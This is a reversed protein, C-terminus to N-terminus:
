LGKINTAWLAYWNLIPQLHVSILFFFFLDQWIVDKMHVASIWCLVFFNSPTHFEDKLM